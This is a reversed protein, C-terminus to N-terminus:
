TTKFSVLATELCRPDAMSAIGWSGLVRPIDGLFHKKELYGERYYSVSGKSPNVKSSVMHM